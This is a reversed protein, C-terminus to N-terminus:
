CVDLMDLTEHYRLAYGFIFMWIFCRHEPARPSVVAFKQLHILGGECSNVKSSEM